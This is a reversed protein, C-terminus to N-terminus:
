ERDITSGITTCNNCDRGYIRINNIDTGWDFMELLTTFFTFLDQFLHLTNQVLHYHWTCVPAPQYNTMRFNMYESFALFKAFDGSYIKCFKAAKESYIFKLMFTWPSVETNRLRLGRYCKHRYVFMGVFMQGKKNQCLKLYLILLYM